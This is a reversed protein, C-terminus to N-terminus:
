TAHRSLHDVDIMLRFLEIMSNFWECTMMFSFFFDVSVTLFWQVDDYIMIFFVEVELKQRKSIFFLSNYSCLFICAALPHSSDGDAAAASVSARRCKCKNASKSMYREECTMMFSFFFDVSVTLHRTKLSSRCRDDASVDLQVM